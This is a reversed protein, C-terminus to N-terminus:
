GEPGVTLRPKEADLALTSDLSLLLRLRARMPRDFPSSTSTSRMEDPVPLRRRGFLGKTQRLDKALQRASRFRLPGDDTLLRSLYGRRRNKTTERASPLRRRRSELVRHGGKQRRDMSCTSRSHACARQLFPPRRSSRICDRGAGPAHRRSRGSGSRRNGRSSVHELLLVRAGFQNGNVGRTSLPGGGSRTANEVSQSRPSPALGPGRRQGSGKEEGVTYPKVNKGKGRRTAM